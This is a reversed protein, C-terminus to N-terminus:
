PSYGNERIVTGDDRLDSYILVGAAGLDQAGM